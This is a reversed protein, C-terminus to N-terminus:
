EFLNLVVKKGGVTREAIRTPFPFINEKGM